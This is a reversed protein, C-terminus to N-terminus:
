SAWMAYVLCVPWVLVCVIKEIPSVYWNRMLVMLTFFLGVTVYACVGLIVM